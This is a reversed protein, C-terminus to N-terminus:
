GENGKLGVAVPLEPRAAWETWSGDYWYVNVYGLLRKLVFWTQSAQHGTRCHVIVPSDKDPILEKYAKELEATSKFLIEDEKKQLDEEYPRNVAGPIHGARAEDSKEGSFYGSPRVDIIVTKGNNLQSLLVPYEVTFSDARSDVPYESPMVNPLNQDWPRGEMQWKALSSDLLAYQFHGLRELAIGILTADRPRGDTALVVLDEQGLGMQSFIAALIPAPM